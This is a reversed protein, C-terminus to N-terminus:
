SNIMVSVNNEICQVIKTPAIIFLLMEMMYPKSEAGYVAVALQKILECYEHFAQKNERYKYKRGTLRFITQMDYKALESSRGLPQYFLDLDPEHNFILWNLAYIVISDYIAYKEPDIFSAVKSLSSIRYFSSKKLTKENLEAKFFEIKDNNIKNKKFSGIGGWKQIIWYCHELNGKLKLVNKLNEKLYINQELNSVISTPIEIPCNKPIEWQYSKIDIEDSIEKLIKILNKM